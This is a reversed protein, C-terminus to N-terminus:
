TWNLLQELFDEEPDSSGGEISNHIFLRMTLLLLTNASLLLFLMGTDFATGKYM